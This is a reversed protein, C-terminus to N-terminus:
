HKFQTIGSLKFLDQVDIILIVRGDGLIAASSIGNIDGILPGLSKVVVEEEGLLRDVLLGMQHKGIAVVVVYRSKSDGRDTKFSFVKDLQLIPLVKDRLIIVPKGNITQMDKDTVAVTSM